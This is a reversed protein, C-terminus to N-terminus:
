LGFTRNPVGGMTQLAFRGRPGEIVASLGAAGAQPHLALGLAAFTWELRAAEPCTVAFDVLSLGAPASASPHPSAGWDILFPVLAGFGHGDIGLISWALHVGDPRTRAMAVPGPSSLGAGPLEAALRPLNRGQACWGILSPVPLAEVLAGLTGARDQSPDPALIELYLGDGLGALANRTGFGPHRGGVAARVGSLDELRAIGEDLDTVAWLLHDLRDPRM